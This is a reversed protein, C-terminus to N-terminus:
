CETSDAKVAVTQDVTLGVKWQDKWDAMQDAWNVVKTGVTWIGM